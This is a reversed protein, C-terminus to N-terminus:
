RVGRKWARYSALPTRLIANTVSTEVRQASAVAVTAIAPLPPNRGPSGWEGFACRMSSENMKTAIKVPTIKTSTSPTSIANMMLYRRPLFGRDVSPGCIWPAVRRSIM